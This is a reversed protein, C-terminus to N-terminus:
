INNRTTGTLTNRASILMLIQGGRQPHAEDLGRFAQFACSPQAPSAESEAQSDEPQSVSSSKGECTSESHFLATPKGPAM